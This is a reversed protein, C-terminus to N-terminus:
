AKLGDLAAGVAEGEDGMWGIAEPGDLGAWWSTLDADIPLVVVRQREELLLQPVAARGEVPLDAIFWIEARQGDKEVGLRWLGDLAGSVAELMPQNRRERRTTGRFARRLSWGAGIAGAVVAIVDTIGPGGFREAASGEALVTATPGGQTAAVRLALTTAEPVRLTAPAQADAAVLLDHLRRSADAPLEHWTRTAHLFADRLKPLKELAQAVSEPSPAESAEIVARVDDMPDVPPPGAPEAKAPEAQPKKEAKQKKEAKPAAREDSREVPTVRDLASLLETDSPEGDLTMLGHTALAERLPANAAGPALVVLMSCLRPLRGAMQEAIDAPYPETHPPVLVLMRDGGDFRVTWAVREDPEAGRGLVARRAGHFRDAAFGALDVVRAFLPEAFTSAVTDGAHRELVARTADGGSALGRAVVTALWPAAHDAGEGDIHHQLATSALTDAQDPHEASFADLARLFAQRRGPLRRGLLQGLAGDEAAPPQDQRAQKRQPIQLSQRLRQDLRALLRDRDDSRLAEDLDVWTRALEARGRGGSLAKRAGAHDGDVALKLADALSLRPAREERAKRERDDRNRPKRERGDSPPTVLRPAQAGLASLLTKAARAEAKSAVPPTQCLSLLSRAERVADDKRELGRHLQAIAWAAERQGPIDTLNRARWGAIEALLSQRADHDNASQLADNWREFPM